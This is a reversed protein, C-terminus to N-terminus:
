KPHANRERQWREAAALEPTRVSADSARPSTAGDPSGRGREATADAKAAATGSAYRCADRRVPEHGKVEKERGYWTASSSIM